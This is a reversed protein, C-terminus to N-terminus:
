LTVSLLLYFSEIDVHVRMGLNANEQDYTIENILGAFKGAYMIYYASDTAMGTNKWMDNWGTM